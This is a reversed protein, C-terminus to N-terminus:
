WQTHSLPHGGSSPLSRRSASGSFLFDFRPGLFHWFGPSLTLLCKQSYLPRYCFFPSWKGKSNHLVTSFPLSNWNSDCSEGVQIKKKKWRNIRLRTNLHCDQINLCDLYPVGSLRSGRRWLQKEIATKTSYKLRWELAFLRLSGACFKSKM